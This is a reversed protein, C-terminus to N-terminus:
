AHDPNDIAATPLTLTLPHTWLLMRLATAAMPLTLTLPRTWLLMRLATAAMPLTAYGGYTANPDFPADMSANPAGYGSYTSDENYSADSLFQDQQYKANYDISTDTFVSEGGASNDFGANKENEEQVKKFNEEIIRQQRKRDEKKSFYIMAGFCFLILLSFLIYLFVHHEGEPDNAYFFMSHDKDSYKVTIYKGYDLEGASSKSVQGNLMSTYSESDSLVVYVQINSYMVESSGNNDVTYMDPSNVIKAQARPMDDLPQASQVDHTITFYLAFSFILVGIFSLVVFFYKKRVINMIADLIIGGSCNM